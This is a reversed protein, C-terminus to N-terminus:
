KGVVLISFTGPVMQPRGPLEGPAAAPPPTFDATILL